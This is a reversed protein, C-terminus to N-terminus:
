GSFRARLQSVETELKRMNEFLRRSTLQLFFFGFAPNQYYLQMIQRYTIELLEGAEVCKLTQTRTKDPSIMALEGVIVGPTIGIDSEVLRCLGSVVFFLSNATDGKRFLVEGAKMRRSSTFPKIWAMNLNGSAAKEVQKVLLNMERLRIINLPLLFVHLLLPPYAAALYGYAIFFVNSGIGLLRLPVMTKMWFTIFVLAAAVYGLFDAQSVGFLLPDMNLVGAFLQILEDDFTLEHLKVRQQGPQAIPVAYEGGGVSSGQLGPLALNALDPHSCHIRSLQLSLSHPRQNEAITTGFFSREFSPVV